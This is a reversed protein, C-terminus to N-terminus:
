RPSDPQEKPPEPKPAPGPARKRAADVSRAHIKMSIWSGTTVMFLIAAGLLIRYLNGIVGDGFHISSLISDPFESRILFNLSLLMGTGIQVVVLLAITMGMYRHYKRLIPEKM